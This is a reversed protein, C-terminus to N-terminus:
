RDRNLGNILVLVYRHYTVRRTGDDDVVAFAVHRQVKLAMSALRVRGRM